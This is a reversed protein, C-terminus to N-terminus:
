SDPLPEHDPQMHHMMERLDRKDFAQGCDPCVHFNDTESRIAPGAIRKDAWSHFRTFRGCM